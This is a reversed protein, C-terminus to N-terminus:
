HIKGIGAATETGEASAINRLGQHRREIPQLGADLPIQVVGVKLRLEIELELGPHAAWGSQGMRRRQALTPSGLDPELAFIKRVGARVLDVVGDALREQRLAQPGLADDSFGTRALM